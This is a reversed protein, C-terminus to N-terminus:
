EEPSSNVAGSPATYTKELKEQTIDIYRVVYLTGEKSAANLDSSEEDSVRFLLFGPATSADLIEEGNTSKIDSVHIAPVVCADPREDDFKVKIAVLDNAELSNAITGAVDTTMSFDLNRKVEDERMISSKTISQNKYMDTAAVMGKLDDEDLVLIDKSMSTNSSEKVPEYKGEISHGRAVDTTLRFQEVATGTSASKGVLFSVLIGVAALVILVGVVLFHKSKTITANGM